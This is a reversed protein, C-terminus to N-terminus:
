KERGAGDLLVKGNAKLARWVHVWSAANGLLITFKYFFPFSYSDNEYPTSFQIFQKFIM